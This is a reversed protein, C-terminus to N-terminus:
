PAKPLPSSPQAPTTSTADTEIYTRATVLAADITNRAPRVAAYKVLDASQMFDRLRQVGERPFRRDQSVAALFEETTQEPARIAHAREIYARVIMTLEFYFEKVLDKEILRKDLLESLEFLARERPSMRRLQVARRLRRFLRWGGYCLAALGALALAYGLFGKLGPYIWVPGRPGAIDRGPKDPTLPESSLVVPRTPFWRDEGTLPDKWTIAMPALRYAGAIRPSLQLRRERTGGGPSPLDYSGAISFGQLRDEMAPLKVLLNTPATIRITLLIDRDLRVTPPDFTFRVAVPGSANDEVRPTQTPAGAFSVAALTWLCLIM